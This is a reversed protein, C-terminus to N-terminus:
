LQRQICVFVQYEGGKVEIGVSRPIVDLTLIDKLLEQDAGTLIAAQIAAGMAVAKDPDVGVCLERNFKSQLRRRLDPMRTCGGILVVEDINAESLEAEHLCDDISRMCSDFLSSCMRELQERTITVTCEPVSLDSGARTSTPTDTKAEQQDAAAEGSSTRHLRYVSVTAEEVTSLAIKAAECDARLRAMDVSRAVDQLQLSNTKGPLPESSTRKSRIERRRGQVEALVHGVLMKDIDAGGVRTNGHTALVEVKGEDIELLSTDFTGGGLDFVCVTKKGAVFLGYAMAGATPEALLRVKEFGALRAAARTAKRQNHEFYAPITVVAANIKEGVQEEAIRKAHQLIHASLEEPYFYGDSEDNTSAGSTGNAAGVSSVNPGRQVPAHAPGMTLKLQLKSTGQALQHQLEPAAVICYPRFRQEEKVRGDDIDLGIVRKVDSATQTMPGVNGKERAVAVLEGVVPSWDDGCFAVVSPFTKGGQFNKFVKAKQRDMRWLSVCSNTTGLDIGLAYKCGKFDTSWVTNM